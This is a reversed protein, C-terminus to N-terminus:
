RGHDKREGDKEVYRSLRELEPTCPLDMMFSTVLACPSYCYNQRACRDCYRLKATRYRDFVNEM